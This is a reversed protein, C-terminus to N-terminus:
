SEGRSTTMEVVDAEGGERGRREEQTKVHNAVYKGEWIV